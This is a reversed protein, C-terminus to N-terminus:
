PRKDHSKRKRQAEKLEVFKDLPIAIFLGTAEAVVTEGALLEGSAHIKRGDVSDMRAVLRLDTELPTPKKYSVRIWATMGPKGSFVTAMGLAEDFAAAVFGGHVCGPAGQYAPGFYVEGYIVASDHDVAFTAPPALPNAKGVIPSRDRFVEMGAALSMEAVGPPDEMEPQGTFRRAATRVQDAIALLEEAPADTEALCATLERVADALERKAPWTGPADELKKAAARILQIVESEDDRGIM